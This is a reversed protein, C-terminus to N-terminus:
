DAGGRRRIQVMNALEPLAKAFGPGLSWNSLDSLHREFAPNIAMEEEGPTEIVVDMPDYPWDLSLTTTFPIFFNDFPFRQYQGCLKDRLRPWPLHDIWPPHVKNLEARQPRVWYPLRNYNEQNPSIHWRMILFMVYLVAVQEPPSSLGPFTALIDTFFRSLAHTYVSRDPRFLCHFSPYAPGLLDADSMGEAKRQRREALFDLLLGDLPCTSETNLPLQTALSIQASQGEYFVHSTKPVPPSEARFTGLTIHSDSPLPPAEGRPRAQRRNPDSLNHTAPNSSSLARHGDPARGQVNDSLFSSLPPASLTPKTIAAHSSSSPGFSTPQSTPANVYPSSGSANPNGHRPGNSQRTNSRDRKANTDQRLLSDIDLEYGALLPKIIELILALHKKIDANEAEVAEKQRIIQQLDRYPQQSKLEQIERELSEIQQKTRERIARQAERDNARKKALQEPTLSAIGRSISTSARRKKNSVRASLTSDTPSPAATESIPPANLHDSLPLSSM